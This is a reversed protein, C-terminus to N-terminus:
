NYIEYILTSFFYSVIKNLSIQTYTVDLNFINSNNININIELNLYVCNIFYLPNYQM